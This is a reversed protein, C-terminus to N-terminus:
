RALHLYQTRIEELSISIFDPVFRKREEEESCNDALTQIIVAGNRLEVFTYGLPSESERLTTINGTRGNFLVVSCDCDNQANGVITLSDIWLDTEMDVHANTWPYAPNLNLAEQRPAGPASPWGEEPFIVFDGSASWKLYSFLTAPPASMETGYVDYFHQSFAVGSTRNTFTVLYKTAFFLSDRESMASGDTWINHGVDRFVVSFKGEPSLFTSDKSQGQVAVVMGTVCATILFLRLAPHMDLQDHIVVSRHRHPLDDVVSIEM